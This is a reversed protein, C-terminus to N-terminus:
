ESESLAERIREKCRKITNFITAVSIGTEEALQRMSVEQNHDRSLNFYLDLVKADFWHFTLLEDHIANIQADTFKNEHTVLTALQVEDIDTFEKHKRTVDLATNRVIFFFLGDTIPKDKNARAWEILKLYSDQVVDEALDQSGYKFAVTIWSHHKKYL